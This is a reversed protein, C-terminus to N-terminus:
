EYMISKSNHQKGNNRTPNGFGNKLKSIQSFVFLLPLCMYWLYSEILYFFLDAVSDASCWTWIFDRFCCRTTMMTRWLNYLSGTTDLLDSTQGFTLKMKKRKCPFWLVLLLFVFVKKKKDAPWNPSDPLFFFSAFYM